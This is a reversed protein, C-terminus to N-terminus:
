QQLLGEIKLKWGAFSSGPLKGVWKSSFRCSISRIYYGAARMEHPVPLEYVIIEDRVRIYVSKSTTGDPDPYVFRIYAGSQIKTSNWGEIDTITTTIRFTDSIAELPFLQWNDSVQIEGLLDWSISM